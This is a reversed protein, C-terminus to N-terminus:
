TQERREEWEVRTLGYIEMDRIKDWKWVIGKMNGQYKYGCKKLVAGSRENRGLVGAGLRQLREGSVGEEREFAWDTM